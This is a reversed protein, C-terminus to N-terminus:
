DDIDPVIDDLEVRLAKALRQWTELSATRRGGTELHSIQGNSVGSVSALELQKLGRYKRWVRLPSHGALLKDVVEVPVYEEGGARRQAAGTAARSDKRDELDAILRTYEDIPILAHKENGLEVIQVGM